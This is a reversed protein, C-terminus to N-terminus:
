IKEAERNIYCKLKKDSIKHDTIMNLKKIRELLNCRFILPNDLALTTDIVLFSYPKATYNKCPNIFCKCDIDLPYNTAIQQLQRKIPIKM